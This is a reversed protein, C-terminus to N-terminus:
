LYIIFMTNDYLQIMYSSFIILMKNFDAVAISRITYQLQNVKLKM